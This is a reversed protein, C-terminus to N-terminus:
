WTNVDGAAEPCYRVPNHWPPSTRQRAATAARLRSALHQAPLESSIEGPYWARRVQRTCGQQEGGHEDGRRGPEVDVRKGRPRATEGIRMFFWFCGVCTAFLVPVGGRGVLGVWVGSM